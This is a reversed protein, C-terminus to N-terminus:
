EAVVRVNQPAAPPPLQVGTARITLRSNAAATLELYILGASSAVARVASGGLEYEAGPILDCLLVRYPGAQDITLDGTTIPSETRSFAAVRAGVRAGVIGTGSLLGTPAPTAVTADTTELVHLFLDSTSPVAPIVEVRYTGAYQALQLNNPDFTKFPRNLDYADEFEHGPGGIKVIRRSAPLLTRAFLKGASGNVTNTATVLGAGTYTWKGERELRETGDVNPNGTTHLLWRKEFRTDTTETRDFIVIRDSEGPANPRFYVFQRTFLNVKLSNKNDHNAPGNYARTADGFVYDFDLGTAPNAAQFRKVGGFDYSSGPTLMRANTVPAPFDERQGGEDWNDARRQIVTIDPFIMTNHAITINAYGQHGTLGSNLALPGRRDITFSNQNWNTYFSRKFPSAIFTVMSDILQDWGTRMAVWGMGDFVKSLPLGLDSPSRPQIGKEGFVLSFLMKNEVNVDTKTNRVDGTRNQILWEVLSAVDPDLDKYLRLSAMIARLTNYESPMSIAEMHHTKYLYRKYGGVRTPDPDGHPRILYALWQPFYRFVNGAPTLYVEARSLGNATRWGEVVKLTNLITSSEDGRVAYDFGESAGGDDAAVFNHADLMGGNVVATDYYGILGEASLDDVGDGWFALGALVRRAVTQSSRDDWPDKIRDLKPNQVNVYTVIQMREGSTLLDFLWDYALAPWYAGGPLTSTDKSVALMLLAKAKAGYQAVSYGYSIGSVSGMRYIFAYHVIHNEWYTDSEVTNFISDLYSVFYQYEAKYPGALKAQFNPITSRTIWIRPHERRALPSGVPPTYASAGASSALTLVVTLAVLRMRM